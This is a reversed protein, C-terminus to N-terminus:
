LPVPSESMCASWADHRHVALADDVTLADGVKRFLRVLGSVLLPARLRCPPKEIGSGKGKLATDDLVAVDRGARVPYDVASAFAKVLM